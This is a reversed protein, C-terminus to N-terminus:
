RIAARSSQSTITVGKTAATLVPRCSPHAGPTRVRSTQPQLRMAPGYPSVLVRCRVTLAQHQPEVWARARHRQGGVRQVGGVRRVCQLAGRTRCPRCHAGRRIRSKPPAVWATASWPASRQRARAQRPQPRGRRENRDNWLWTRAEKTSCEFRQGHTRRQASRDDRWRPDSTSGMAREADGRGDLSGQTWPFGM